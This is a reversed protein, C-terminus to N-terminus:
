QKLSKGVKAELSQVKQVIRGMGPQDKRDDIRITTMVRDTRQLVAQHCQKALLMVQDWAGEVVTGMPGVRYDLGSRDILAAVAALLASLSASKTGIPVIELEALM